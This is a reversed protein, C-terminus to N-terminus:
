LDSYPTLILLEVPDAIPCASSISITAEVTLSKHKSVSSESHYQWLYWTFNTGLLVFSSPNENVFMLLIDAWLFDIPAKSGNPIDLIWRVLGETERHMWLTHQARIRNEQSADRM